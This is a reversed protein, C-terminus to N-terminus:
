DAEPAEEPEFTNPGGDAPDQFAGEVEDVGGVFVAASAVAFAPDPLGQRLRAAGSPTTTAVLTSGM